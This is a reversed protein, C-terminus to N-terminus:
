LSVPLPNVLEVVKFSYNSKKPKFQLKSSDKLGMKGPYLVTVDEGQESLEESLDTSYQPLGGRRYPPLGLTYQLIKM